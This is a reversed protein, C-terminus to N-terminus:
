IILRSNSLVGGIGATSRSNQCRDGRCQWALGRRCGGAPNRTNPGSGAVTSPKTDGLNEPGPIPARCGSQRARRREGVRVADSGSHPGPMDRDRQLQQTAPLPGLRWGVRISGTPRPQQSLEYAASAAFRSSWARSGMQAYTPGSKLAMPMSLLGCSRVSSISDQIPRPSITAATRAPAKAGAERPGAGGSKLRFCWGGGKSSIMTFNPLLDHGPRPWTRGQSYPCDGTV